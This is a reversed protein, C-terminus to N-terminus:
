RSCMQILKEAHRLAEETVKEGSLMRGIERTRAPADLERIVAVTRGNAELKEVFYHHGAFGAIQPLHTVCLVQSAASLLKLRRGVVEAARGGIGADVEDFVLTRAPGGTSRSKSTAGEAVCTKLALAIRSIEGGSAVKDLPRPEEGPNASVLFRVEDFGGPSWAVRELDM